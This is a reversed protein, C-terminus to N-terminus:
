SIVGCVLATVFAFAAAFLAANLAFHLKQRTSAPKKAPVSGYHNAHTHSIGLDAM